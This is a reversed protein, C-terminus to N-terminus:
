FPHDCYNYDLRDYIIFHKQIKEKFLEWDKKSSWNVESLAALRPLVMYEVYEPTKMYETWVNGQAGLIHSAEYETLTDPVPNYSYIQELSTYGGIALPETESNAQYHDFYCHSGPTMIADHDQRAAAIGGDTGRWSMVTANPALGGELIEDWGIINRGHSNLFKEIRQIFYSQLEHEDKLGERVITAQCTPCEKWRAKPAEDGGIHIYKSPFLEMVELLVNELFDFNLDKTCYIDNFVGWRTAVEYPGGTCGLEPYAALAALSHGPMEIEPIITIQRQAAYDVIDRIEDQTYFGGYPKGDYKFPKIGGHGILTEKRLAGIETLKPYKNIEIRWGQDETLHWHFTNFKYLALLDIYKKIFAPPFMHRGVDLHMGRYAFRPNDTIEMTPIEIKSLTSAQLDANSLLLQFLSQLGYFTGKVSNAKILVKKKEVELIYGEENLEDINVAISLVIKNYKKNEDSTVNLKVGFTNNVLESFYSAQQKLLNNNNFVITTNPSLIFNSNGIEIQRPQPIITININEPKQANLLLFVTSLFFSFIIKM